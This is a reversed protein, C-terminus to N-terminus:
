HGSVEFRIGSPTSKVQVSFARDITKEHAHSAGFFRCSLTSGTIKNVELHQNDWSWKPILGQSILTPELRDFLAALITPSRKGCLALDVDNYNSTEHFNVAWITKESNSITSVVSTRQPLVVKKNDCVFTTHAVRFNPTEYQYTTHIEAGLATKYISFVILFLPTAKM